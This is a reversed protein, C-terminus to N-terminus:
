SYQITLEMENAIGGILNAIDSEIRDDYMRNSPGSVSLAGIVSGDQHQVSVGVARLGPISEERNVAYGQDRISDLEASLEDRDTITNECIKQLGWWDIIEDVRHSPLAALIAKGASSAHLYREKGIRANMQVAQAGTDTTLYFGRGYEEVVFQAREGTETALEMVKQVALKYEERQSAVHGGVNLFQLGLHYTEDRKVIFREQELTKLHAHITSPSMGLTDSLKSVGAGNANQLALIIRFATQVSDITRWSENSDMGVSAGGWVFIRRQRVGVRGVIKKGM